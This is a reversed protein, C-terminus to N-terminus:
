EHRPDWEDKNLVPNLITDSFEIRMTDGDSEVVELSKLFREDSGFSMVIRHIMDRSSSDARPTFQFALPSEGLLTVNFEHTLALYNGSFWRQIQNVAAAFVPNGALSIQQVGDSDESWQRLTKGQIVMACRVPSQVRWAISDPQRLTIRGKLVLKNELIAMQKEQVFNGKLTHVSSLRSELQALREAVGPAVEPEAAFVPLGLVLCFAAALLAPKM